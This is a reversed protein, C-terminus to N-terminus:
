WNDVNYRTKDPSFAGTKGVYTGKNIYWYAGGPNATNYIAAENITDEYYYVETYGNLANKPFENSMFDTTTLNFYYAETASSGDSVNKAYKLAIASRVAGLGARTAGMKADDTIAVYKPLATAALIGLIVIAIVLEILTFGKNM